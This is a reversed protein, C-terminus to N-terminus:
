FPVKVRERHQKVEKKQRHVRELPEGLKFQNWKFGLPTHPCVTSECAHDTQTCSVLMKEGVMGQAATNETMDARLATAM